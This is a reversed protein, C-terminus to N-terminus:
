QGTFRPMPPVVSAWSMQTLEAQPAPGSKEEHGQVHPVHTQRRLFILKGASPQCHGQLTPTPSCCLTTGM